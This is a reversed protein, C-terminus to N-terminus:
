SLSAGQLERTIDRLEDHVPMRKSRGQRRHVVAVTRPTRRAAAGPVDNAPSAKEGGKPQLTLEVDPGAEVLAKAARAAGQTPVGDIALIAVGEALKGFLASSTSVLRVIVGRSGKSDGLLLGCKDGPNKRFRLVYPSAPLDTSPRRKGFLSFRSSQTPPVLEKTTKAAAEPALLPPPLAQFPENLEHGSTADDDDDSESGAGLEQAALWSIQADHMTPSKVHVEDM